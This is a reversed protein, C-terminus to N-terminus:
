GKKLEDIDQRALKHIMDVHKLLDFEEIELSNALSILPMMIAIGLRKALEEGHVQDILGLATQINSIAQVLDAFKPGKHEVTKRMFEFIQFNDEM